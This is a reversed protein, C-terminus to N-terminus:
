SNNQRFMEFMIVAAAVSSNLSDLEPRMPISVLIDCEKKVLPRIGAGENGVVLCAPSSFDAEYISQSTADKVAGFVWAGAKKLKKLATVLNTVQCIDIHAMAGAASKAATGGPQASRDRTIIVGDMGSGYGSRIIAGLNHPDQISDCVMLRPKEGKSVKESFRDLLTEFPVLQTQCIRAAVGQHRIQSSEEGTMRLTQVFSIKIGAKRALGIIEEPKAGRRDKQFIIESLKAPETKLIELVPHIGWILDDSVRLGWQKNNQKEKKKKKM